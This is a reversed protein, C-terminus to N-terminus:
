KEEAHNVNMQALCWAAFWSKLSLLVVSYIWRRGGWDLV